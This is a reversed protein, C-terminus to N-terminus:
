ETWQESRVSSTKTVFLIGKCKWKENSVSGSIYIHEFTVHGEKAIGPSGATSYKVVEDFNEWIRCKINGATILM